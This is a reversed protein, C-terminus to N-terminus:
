KSDEKQLVMPELLGTWQEGTLRGRKKRSGNPKPLSDRSELMNSSRAETFHVRLYRFLNDFDVM